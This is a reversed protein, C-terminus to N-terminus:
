SVVYFQLDYPVLKGNPLTLGLSLGSPKAGESDEHLLIIYFYSNLFGYKFNNSYYFSLLYNYLLFQLPFVLLNPFTSNRSILM